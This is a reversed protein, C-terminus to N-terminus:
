VLWMNVRKFREIKVDHGKIFNNHVVVVDKNKTQQKKDNFFLAGNPFNDSSLIKLKLGPVKKNNLFESMVEQDPTLKPDSKMFDIWVKLFKITTKTSKYYVFGACFYRSSDRALAMDFDGDFFPFPDKLWFMDVDTFLVNYGKELFSLIYSPRKNVFKRYDESDFQLRGSSTKGSNTKLIHLGAGIRKEYHQSTLDDEAIITINPCTKTLRVSELFNDAFDIFAANTTTLVVTKKRKQVDGLTCPPILISEKSISANQAAPDLIHTVPLIKGKLDISLNVHVERTVNQNINADIKVDKKFGHLHKPKDQVSSFECFNSFKCVGIFNVVSIIMTVTCYTWWRSRFMRRKM